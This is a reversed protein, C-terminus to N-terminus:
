RQSIKKRTCGGVDDEPHERQKIALHIAEEFIRVVNTGDAASVYFFPLNHKVAFQFKKQTSSPDFDIKNAICIVPINRMVGAKCNAYWKELNKYTIKRTM